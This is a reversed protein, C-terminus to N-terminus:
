SASWNPNIPVVSPSKTGKIMFINTPQDTYGSRPNNNFGTVENYRVVINGNATRGLVTAGGSHYADLVEQAEGHTRFYGGGNHLPDGAVHRSQKQRSITTSVGCGSPNTNHVLVPTNGALVYYTHIDDVTLNYAAALTATTNLLGVVPVTAGTATLLLDGQDLHQADQWQQDTHNWFPHDETTTITTGNVLKLDVLQDGHVWIHTVERPGHERTEPDTALVLDGVKIDEIRKTSGDAMLIQTDAAFSRFCSGGPRSRGRGKGGAPASQLSEFLNFFPDSAVRQEYYGLGDIQGVWETNELAWQSCWDAHEQCIRFGVYYEKDGLGLGAGDISWKNIADELAKRDPAGIVKDGLIIAPKKKPPPKPATPKKKAVGWKNTKPNKALKTGKGGGSSWYRDEEYGGNTALPRYGDPDSLTSPNNNAYSYGHMQQPDTLDMVPDISIFRGLTPDYERAGLHVLSTDDNTGGVFGKTGLWPTPTTGRDEGYPMTRRRQCALTGADIQLQGTGQHNNVTWKLGTVDRVAYGNYYRTGDPQGSGTALALETGGLYLTTKGPARSILRNGDADYLYSTTQGNETLTALHGEPDWTLTQSNGTETTRTLTNGATDYTFARTPTGAKPGTATVGTVTHPRPQGAAPTTYTWTTDGAPDKDTQTLRNGVKDFTWKRWYPDAGARQPTACTWSAETWAETLRQLHDYTFCEVQDRTGNTKGAIAAILGNDRYGYETTYKDDWNGPSTQNETDVQINTLRRHGTDHQTTVRVRKDANGLYTRYALGDYAYEVDALYTQQASSMSDLLGQNLYNYTLTEAPLGGVGPHTVTAVAGNVKYTMGTTYSGALAGNSTSAPISVTSSLPRYGDDYSGVSTTYALGDTDYRTASSLQGKAATDYTWQAALRGTPSDERIETHRDLNDYHHYHKKGRGDTTAKVTGTSHYETLTTGADPDAAQTKRGLLDYDYSWTNGAPDTVSTLEGRLNYDYGTHDYDGDLDSTHYQRKEVVQGRDDVIARTPFGGAPPVVTTSNWTYSTTTKWSYQGLSWSEAETQRGRGDYTYRTQREIASDAATVLTSTPGSNTNWFASEKVTLGREDFVRETIIRKSDAAVTQTQRHQSLGGYIDYSEIQNGNPGLARTRIWSPATQSVTYTYAADPTGTTNGPRTVTLLRGLPDYTGTTVKTNPDTVTLPLGRSVDLTTTTTHLAANTVAVQTNLRDANETYITTTTRNLADTSSTIQGHPNYVVNQSAIQWGGDVYNETKTVNGRGPAGGHALGDYYYRTDGLLAGPTEACGEARDTRQKVFEYKYGTANDAYAYTTCTEDGDASNGEDSVTLVRGYTSDFGTDVRARQSWAGDVWEWRTEVKTRTIYSKHVNPVAWDTSLTRTGTTVAWPDHKLIQVVTGGARDYIRENLLHGRRYETDWAAGGGVVSDFPTVSVSRTGTDIVDGDLGRLYLYDTQSRTGATPNGKRVTVNTYGAWESWSRKPLSAGWVAAGKSLGWLVSSSSNETSYGYETTIPPSGGVLDSEVIKATIRKHWWSWGTEGSPNTYYQAFCRKSNQDPDPFTGGFTCGTDNGAYTVDVQGGTETQLRTIRYKEHSKMTGAPDYDARNQTKTGFALLKPLTVSGGSKGSHEINSLWLVPSPATPFSHGIVWEDVPSYTGSKLVQTTVKSVRKSSWFTPALNNACPATLCELDWPTDPWNTENRTGCSSTVCRDSNTFVVRAPATVSSGDSTHTGYEIRNLHVARHYAVTTSASNMLGTRVTDRDYWYSIENGNRDVVYDLMWRWAQQCRSASASSSSFCPEGSHNAFVPVVPASNTNGKGNPLTQRGFWYQTGDATTIKWHEGNDDGNSAGTLLEVKSGDDDALRWKGDSALVIEGVTGNLTVQANPQRWCLDATAALATWHPSLAPESDDACPRYTREIFGPTYNWGEGFTSPQTNSGATQGDVAGSSYALGVEPVLGGPVSPAAMPYSYTFDGSNGSVAWTSSEELDSKSFDGTETSSGSAALVVLRDVDRAPAGAGATQDEGTAAAPRAPLEVEATIVGAEGDNVSDLWGVQGCQEVEPSALVCAPMTALRLRWAWDGGYAHAFASYDVRLEVRGGTGGDVREVKLALPVGARGAVKRDLLEVRVRGPLESAGAADALGRSSLVDLDVDDVATVTVPLGGPEVSGPLRRSRDSSLPLDVVASGRSPWEVSEGKYVPMAPLPKPKTAASSVRVPRERGGPEAALAAPVAPVVGVLSALLSGVLLSSLFRARRRASAKRHTSM